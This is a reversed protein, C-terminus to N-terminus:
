ELGWSTMKMSHAMQQQDSDAKLKKAQMEVASGTIKVGIQFFLEICSIFRHIKKM